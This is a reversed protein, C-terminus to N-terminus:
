LVSFGCLVIVLDDRPMSRKLVRCKVVLKYTTLLAIGKIHPLGVGFAAIDIHEQAEGPLDGISHLFDQHVLM